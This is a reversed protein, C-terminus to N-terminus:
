QPQRGRRARSGLGYHRAGIRLSRRLSPSRGFHIRVEARITPVRRPCDRRNPRRGIRRGLYTYAQNCALTHPRSARRDRSVPRTNGAADRWHRRKRWGVARALLRHRHACLCSDRRPAPAPWRALGASARLRCQLRRGSALGLNGFERRLDRLLKASQAIAEVPDFPNSLGRWNATAPMFQAVGQAGARSVAAPDFRSEQWILWHLPVQRFLRPRLSGSAMVAPISRYWRCRTRYQIPNLPAKGIEIVIGNLNSRM